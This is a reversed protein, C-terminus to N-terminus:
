PSTEGLFRKAEELRPTREGESAIAALTEYRALAVDHKGLKEAARAAGLLSQSRNPLRRLMEEYAAFAEETRGADFLVSAYLELPPVMPEPPGYAPHMEKEKTMAEKM